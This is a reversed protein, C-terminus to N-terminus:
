SATSTTPSQRRQQVQHHRRRRRHARATEAARPAARCPRRRSLVARRPLPGGALTRTRRHGRRRAPPPRLDTQCLTRFRRPRASAGGGALRQVAHGAFARAVSRALAPRAPHHDTRLGRGRLLAGAHRRGLPQDIADDRRRQARAAHRRPRGARVAVGAVRRCHRRRHRFPSERARRAGGASDDSSQYM